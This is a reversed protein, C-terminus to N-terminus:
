FYRILGVVLSASLIRSTPISTQETHKDKDARLVIHNEIKSKYVKRILRGFETELVYTQGYQYWLDEIDLKKCLLKDGKHFTPYMDDNTLLTVVDFPLGKEKLGLGTLDKTEM